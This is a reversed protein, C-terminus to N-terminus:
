MEHAPHCQRNTSGQSPALSLSSPTWSNTVMATSCDKISNYPRHEEHLSLEPLCAFGLPHCVHGQADWM